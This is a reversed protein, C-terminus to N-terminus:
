NWGTWMKPYREQTLRDRQAQAFPNVGGSGSTTAVGDGGVTVRRHEKLPSSRQQEMAAMERSNRPSRFGSGIDHLSSAKKLPSNVHTFAGLSGGFQTGTSKASSLGLGPSPASPMTQHQQYGAPLSQRSSSRSGPQPTTSAATGWRRAPTKNTPTFLRPNMVNAQPRLQSSTEYDPDVHRMYNPNPFTQFEKKIVTTPTGLQVSGGKNTDDESSTQTAVDRVVPHLRPHVFKTDYEHLVEKHIIATDKIQQSFRSQLFLLQASMIVQLLLCNFVTVSPRPDLPVLPLYLMYVLVHGPSFLAFLQLSVPLPDWVALEWVDRTKDPHARSEATEPLMVNALFRLPSSAVPSSQVKVRSASPTQPPQEVNVEFLRYHRSRTMTYIANSTSLFLLIWVLTRFLYTAMNSSSYDSFVDDQGGSERSNARAILFAFNFALGLQTGLAKSDWDRTELEESLWLLFDMPNLMAKIRESWPKRRVIRPPM